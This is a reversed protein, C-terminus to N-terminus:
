GEKAPLSRFFQPFVASTVRLTGFQFQKDDLAKGGSRSEVAKIL